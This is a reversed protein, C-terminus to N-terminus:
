YQQDPYSFVPTFKEPSAKEGAEVWCHGELREKNFACGFVINADFGKKRMIRCVAVSNTFCSPRIWLRGMVFYVFTLYKKLKDASCNNDQHGKVKALELRKGPPTLGVFVINHLIFFLLRLDRYYSLKQFFAKM